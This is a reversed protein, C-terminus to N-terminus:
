NGAAATTTTDAKGSVHLVLDKITNFLFIIFQYVKTVFDEMVVDGKMRQEQHNYCLLFSVAIICGDIKSLNMTRYCNHM